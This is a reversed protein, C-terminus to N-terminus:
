IFRDDDVDASTREQFFVEKTSYNVGVSCLIRIVYLDKPVISHAIIPGIWSVLDDNGDRGGLTTLM